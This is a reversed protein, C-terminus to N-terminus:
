RRSSLWRRALWLRAFRLPMLCVAAHAGCPVPVCVKDGPKVALSIVVGPMPSVVFKSMDIEVKLPMLSLLHDERPTAVRAKYQSGKHQLVLQYPADSMYQVVHERNGINQMAHRTLRAARGCLGARLRFRVVKCITEGYRYSTSIPVKTMLVENSKRDTVTLLGSENDGDTVFNEVKAIFEKGGVTVILENLRERKSALMNEWFTVNSRSVSAARVARDVLPCQLVEPTRNPKGEGNRTIQKSHIFTAAAALIEDDEITLVPSQTVPRTGQTLAPRSLSSGCRAHVQFGQPYEQAIFYTSIDGKIFRENDCV